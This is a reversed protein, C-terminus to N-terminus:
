GRINIKERGVGFLLVMYLLNGEHFSVWKEQM